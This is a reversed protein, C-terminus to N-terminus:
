LGVDVEKVEHVPAFADPQNVDPLDVTLAYRRWGEPKQGPQSSACFYNMGPFTDLYLTVKM